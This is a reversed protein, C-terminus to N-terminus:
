TENPPIQEGFMQINLPEQSTNASKSYDIIIMSLNHRSDIGTWIAGWEQRIRPIGPAIGLADRLISYHFQERKADNTPAYGGSVLEEGEDPLFYYLQIRELRGKYFRLRVKVRRSSYDICTKEYCMDYKSITNQKWLHADHRSNLDSASFDPHLSLQPDIKVEGTTMNFM